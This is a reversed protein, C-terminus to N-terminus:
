DSWRWQGACVGPRWYLTGGPTEPRTDNMRKPVGDAGADDEHADKPPNQEGPGHVDPAAELVYWSLDSTSSTPTMVM